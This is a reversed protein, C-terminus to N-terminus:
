AGIDRRYRSGAFSIHEVAAYAQERASVLDRGLGTVGLIRGGSTVLAHDREATGAHFVLAGLNRANDIGTIPSGTDGAAPYDRAAVVVTV